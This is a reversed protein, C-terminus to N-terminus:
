GGVGAVGAQEYYLGVLLAWGRGAGGPVDGFAAFQHAGWHVFGLVSLIDVFWDLVAQQKWVRVSEWEGRDDIRSFAWLECLPM